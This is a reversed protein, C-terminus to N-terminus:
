NTKIKSFIFHDKDKEFTMKYLQNSSKMQSVINVRLSEIGGLKCNDTCCEFKTESYYKKNSLDLLSLKYAFPTEFNECKETTEAREQVAKTAYFEVVYESNQKYTSVIEYIIGDLDCTDSKILGEITSYKEKGCRDADVNVTFNAVEVKEDDFIKRSLELIKDYENLHDKGNKIFYYEAAVEYKRNAADRLLFTDISSNKNQKLYAVTLNELEFKEEPLVEKKENMRKIPKVFYYNVFVIITVIAIIIPIAVLKNSSNMKKM